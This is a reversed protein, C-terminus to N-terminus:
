GLSCIRVFFTDDDSIGDELQPDKLEMESRNEEKKKVINFLLYYSIKGM